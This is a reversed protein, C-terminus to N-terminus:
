FTYSYEYKKKYDELKREIVCLNGVRFWNSKEKVLNVKWLKRVIDSKSLEM